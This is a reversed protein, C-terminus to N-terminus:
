WHRLIFFFSLLLKEVPKLISYYSESNIKYALHFRALTCRRELYSPTKSGVSEPVIRGRELLVIFVVVMVKVMLIVAMIIIVMWWIAMMVMVMVSIMLVVMILGMMVM